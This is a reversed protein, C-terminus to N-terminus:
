SGQMNPQTSAAQHFRNEWALRTAYFLARCLNKVFTGRLLGRVIRWLTGGREGSQLLFPATLVQLTPSQTRLCREERFGLRDAVDCGWAMHQFKCFHWPDPGFSWLELTGGLYERRMRANCALSARIVSSNKDDRVFFHRRSIVQIYKPVCKITCRVGDRAEHKRSQQSAKSLLTHCCWSTSIV